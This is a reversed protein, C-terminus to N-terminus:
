TDLTAKEPPVVHLTQLELEEIDLASELEVVQIGELYPGALSFAAM